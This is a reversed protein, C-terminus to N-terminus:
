RLRWHGRGCTELAAPRPPGEGRRRLRLASVTAASVARTVSSPLGTRLSPVAVGLARARRGGPSARLTTRAMWAGGEPARVAWAM